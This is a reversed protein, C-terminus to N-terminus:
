DSGLALPVGFAGALRSNNIMMDGVRRVEDPRKGAIAKTLLQRSGPAYALALGGALYPSVGTPDYAAGLGGGGLAAGGLLLRGATGSDPVQNRLIDKGAQAMGQGLAEGRLYAKSRVSNDGAQVASDYQSASFKGTEGGRMKAANEARVFLSYGEDAADMKAVAEPPSYKRAATDLIAQMEGLGSSLEFNQSRKAGDILKGIASHMDKYDSGSVTGNKLRRAVQADYIKAIRRYVDESVEGDALRQNLDNIAGALEDDAQLVMGGRAERYAKDFEKQAFSMAKAGDADAPLKSGLPSLADDIVARNFGAEAKGRASGIMDGIIPVSQLKEEVRAATPGMAQGPTLSVGKSRLLDVAKDGVPAFVRGLGTALTRGGASGVGAGAAGRLAGSVQEGEDAKNAGFAAGYATDAAIGKGAQALRSGSAIMGAAKPLMRAAGAGGAILGGVEGVLTSIPNDEALVSADARTKALNDAYAGGGFVTKGAALTKDRLGVTLTDGAGAAGAVLPNNAAGLRERASAKAQEDATEYSISGAGEGGAQYFDFAAKAQEPKIDAGLGKAYTVIEDPTGARQAFDLLKAENDKSLRWGIAGEDPADKFVLEGKDDYEPPKYDPSLDAVTGGIIADIADPEWKNAKTFDHRRKLAGRVIEARRALNQKIIAPDMRESITTEEYAKKEGPTLASGFLDNRVQNDTSRFDAWWQRQGPTGINANLSQLGSELGGTVTNGSYDNVFGGLGRKYAEYTNTLATLVDAEKSPLARTKGEPKPIIGSARYTELEKVHEPKLTKGQAEAMMLIEARKKAENAM